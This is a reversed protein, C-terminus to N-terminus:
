LSSAARQRHDLETLLSEIAPGLAPDSRCPAALSRASEFQQAALESLALNYRNSCVEPELEFARTFAAKAEPQLGAALAVRGLARQAPAYMAMGTTGRRAWDLAEALQGEELLLLALNSMARPEGGRAAERMVAVGSRRDGSKLLLLARRLLLRPLRTHELGQAAIALARGLDGTEGVAEAYASWAMGDDPNSAVARSWLAVPSQWGGRADMTRLSCACVFAAGLGVALWRPRLWLLLAAAGLALGLTPLLLYRDAVVVMQLPLLLHSVPLWGAAWLGTAARGVPPVRLGGFGPLFTLVLVAGIGLAGLALEFSSPGATAIPYSVANPLALGALRLYFGHVGLVRALRSGPLPLEGGVVASSLALRLVPVFASLSAAGVVGLGTLSRRWSVRREAFLVELLPLALLAFVALAKSWAACVAAAAALALWFASRGARFRAYCLGSCGAFLMGLLGKREALWAVSEVHAPHISWFFLALGAIRREIGFSTFLGFWVGIAALYLLLNDLHFGAYREGWLAFDLMVSLDRVPLYEPSLAYRKPSDLDFFITRLSSWSTSQVIWNDRVLWADDYKVLGYGLSPLYSILAALLGLALWGLGPDRRVRDLLARFM